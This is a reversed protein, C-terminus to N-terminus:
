QLGNKNQTKNNKKKCSKNKQRTLSDNGTLNEYPKNLQTKQIEKAHIQDGKASQEIVQKAAPKEQKQQANMSTVILSGLVVLALERSYTKM